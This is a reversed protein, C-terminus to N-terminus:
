FVVKDELHLNGSMSRSQLSFTSGFIIGVQHYIKMLGPADVHTDVTVLDSPFANVIGEVSVGDADVAPVIVSDGITREVPEIDTSTPNHLTTTPVLDPPAIPIGLLNGKLTWGEDENKKGKKKSGWGWSSSSSPLRPIAAEPPALQVSTALLPNGGFSAPPFRELLSPPVPGSFGNNSLNLSKLHPLLGLGWPIPGALFNNELHLTELADLRGLTTNEPMYGCLGLGSLRLEVVRSRDSNCAVGAWSSCIPDAPKWGLGHPVVFDLLAKKDKELNSAVAVKEQILLLSFFMTLFM